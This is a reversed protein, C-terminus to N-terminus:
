KFIRLLVEAERLFATDIVDGDVYGAVLRVRFVVVASGAVQEVELEDEIVALAAARQRVLLDYAVREACSCLRLELDGCALIVAFEGRDAHQRVVRVAITVDVILQLDLADLDHLLGVVREARGPNCVAGGFVALTGPDADFVLIRALDGADLAGFSVRDAFEAGGVEDRFGTISRFEKYADGCVRIGSGGVDSRVAFRDGRRVLDQGAAQLDCEVIEIRVAIELRYRVEVADLQHVLVCSTCAFLDSRDNRFALVAVHIVVDAIRSVLETRRRCVVEVYIRSIQVLEEVHAKRYAAVDHGVPVDRGHVDPHYASGARTIDVLVTFVRVAIRVALIRLQDRAPVPLIVQDMVEIDVSFQLIRRDLTEIECEFHIRHFVAFLDACPRAGDCSFRLGLVIREVQIQIRRRCIRRCRRLIVVQRGADAEGVRRVQQRSLGRGPGHLKAHGGVSAGYEIRHAQVRLVEQGQVAHVDLGFGRAYQLRGDTVTDQLPDAAAHQHLSVIEAADAVRVDASGHHDRVRLTIRM